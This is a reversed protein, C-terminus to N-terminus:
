VECKSRFSLHISPDTFMIQQSDEKKKELLGITCSLENRLVAIVIRYFSIWFGTQAPTQIFAFNTYKKLTDEIEKRQHRIAHKSFVTCYLPQHSWEHHEHQRFSKSSKNGKEEQLNM